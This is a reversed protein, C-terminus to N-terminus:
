NLQSLEPANCFREVQTQTEAIRAARQEDTYYIPEDRGPETFRRNAPDELVRLNRRAVECNLRLAAVREADPEGAGAEEQTDPEAASIPSQEPASAGAPPPTIRLERASADRPAQSGYHVKGESDTWKYIQAQAGSAIAVLLAVGFIMFRMM